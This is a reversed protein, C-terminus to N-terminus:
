SSAPLCGRARPPSSRPSSSISRACAAPWSSRPGRKSAVGLFPPLTGAALGKAVARAAAEAHGDEEADPRHGYGDEFDIRFDEVPERGLKEVVRAHVKSRLEAGADLGIARAFTEADPASAELARLALQGLKPAADHAFLHAGGYVTHVPQRKGTPGPYARAFALNGARLRALPERVLDPDLSTPDSM